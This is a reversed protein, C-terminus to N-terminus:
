PGGEVNYCMVESVASTGPLPAVEPLSTPSFVFM